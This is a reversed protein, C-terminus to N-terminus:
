QSYNILYKGYTLYEELFRITNGCKIRLLEPSKIGKSCTGSHRSNHSACHLLLIFICKMFLSTKHILGLIVTKRPIHTFVM